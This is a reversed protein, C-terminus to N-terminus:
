PKFMLWTSGYALAFLFISRITRRWRRRFYVMGPEAKQYGLSVVTALVGTLAAFIVARFSEVYGFAFLSYLVLYMFLSSAWFDWCFETYAM